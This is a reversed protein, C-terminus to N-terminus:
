LDEFFYKLMLQLTAKGSSTKFYRERRVADTRSAFAEYFILRLPRRHETSKVKGSEHESVRRRLDGSRGAYLQRNSLLLVYVYHM